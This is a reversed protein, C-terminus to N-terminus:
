ISILVIAALAAIVGISQWRTLKEKLIAWALLVTSAPYLASLVAAVDKRGAQSALILFANGGADLIGSGIILPLDQRAPIIPQRTFLAFLTLGILSAARAAVLPWFVAGQATRGVIAIFAGFCLGAFLPLGIDNLQFAVGESRSILWVAILALIFGVVKLWDPLKDLFAAAIVPVAASLVGSVPAALGMRGQALSRYLALLGAAGLLGAIASIILVSLAPIPEKFVFALILLLVAGIFQSVIVVQYIGARKSALGGCFDGAGWSAASALGFLVSLYESSFM